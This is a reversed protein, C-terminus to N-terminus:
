EFRRLSPMAETIVSWLLKTRSSMNRHERVIEAVEELDDLTVNALLRHLRLIRAVSSKSVGAVEALCADESGDTVFAEMIVRHEDPYDRWNVERWVYDEIRANIAPAMERNLATSQVRNAFDPEADASWDQPLQVSNRVNRATHWPPPTGADVGLGESDLRDSWAKLEDDKKPRM